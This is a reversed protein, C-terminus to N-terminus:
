WGGGSTAGWAKTEAGGTNGGAGTVWTPDGGGGKNNDWTGDTTVEEGGSHGRNTEGSEEFPPAKYGGDRPLRPANAKTFGQM